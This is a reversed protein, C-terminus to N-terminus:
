IKYTRYTYAINTVIVTLWYRWSWLNEGYLLVLSMILVILGCEKKLYKAITSLLIKTFKRM